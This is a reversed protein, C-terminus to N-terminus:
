GQLDLLYDNSDAIHVFGFRKTCFAILRPATSEFVLYHVGAKRALDTIVVFARALTVATRRQNGPKSSSSFQTHVRTIEADVPELRFYMVPGFKDDCAFNVSDPQRFFAETMMRASHEPDRAIWEDIIARDLDTIPRLM